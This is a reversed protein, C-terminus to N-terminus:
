FGRTGEQDISTFSRGIGLELSQKVWDLVDLGTAERGLRYVEWGESKRKAEISLVM